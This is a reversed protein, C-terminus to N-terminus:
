CISRIEGYEQRLTTSSWSTGYTLALAALTQEFVAPTPMVVIWNGAARSSREYLTGCPPRRPWSASFITWVNRTCIAASGQFHSALLM